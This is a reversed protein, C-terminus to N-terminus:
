ANFNLAYGTAARIATLQITAAQQLTMGETAVETTAAFRSRDNMWRTLTGTATSPVIGGDNINGVIKEDTAIPTIAGVASIIARACEQVNKRLLATDPVMLHFGNPLLDPDGLLETGYREARQRRIQRDAPPTEHCDTAMAFSVNLSKVRAMLLAAEAVPSGEIFGRNTDDAGITWRHNIRYAAPTVCPYIFVNARERINPAGAEILQLCAEIGSPEYGHVGGTIILSPKASNIQRPEVCLLFDGHVHGYSSLILSPPLVAARAREYIDANYDRVQPQQDYWAACQDESWGTNQANFM